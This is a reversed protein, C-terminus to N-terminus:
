IICYSIIHSSLIHHSIIPFFLISYPILPFFLIHYLVMKAISKSLHISLESGMDDLILMINYTNQSQKTKRKNKESM